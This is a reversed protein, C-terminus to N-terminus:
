IIIKKKCIWITIEYEFRSTRYYIMKHEHCPFKYSKLKTQRHYFQTLPYKKNNGICNNCVDFDCLSCYYTSENKSFHKSCIKCTWDSNFYLLVLGHNHKSIHVHNKCEIKNGPCINKKLIFSKNNDLKKIKNLSTKSENNIKKKIGFRFFLMPENMEITKNSVIDRTSISKDLKREKINSESNIMLLIKSGDKIGNDSLTESFKIVKGDFVATRIEKQINFLYKKKIFNNLTSQFTDNTNGSFEYEQGTSLNIKFKISSSSM